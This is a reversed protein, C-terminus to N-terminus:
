FLFFLYFENHSTNQFKQKKNITFNPNSSFVIESDIIQLLLNGEYLKFLCKWPLIHRHYNRLCDFFGSDAQDM